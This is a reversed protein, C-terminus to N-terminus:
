KKKPFWPFFIPTRSAYEQFEPNNAYKKELLPVGSVFRLLYTMAIPSLIAIFWVSSPIVVVLLAWWMVAEGFYNPHRTYKWLGTQMIKTKSQARIKLFAKLQADGISEFLFGILHLVMGAIIWVSWDIPNTNLYAAYIPLAIFLMIMGQTFFVNIYAKWRPNKPGWKKRMEVYRFDEPKKFNRIGIYLFLRLGWLTVLATVVIMLLTVEVNTSITYIMSYWAIVVFGLGWGIDVISNNNLKQAVLFFVLIYVHVTLFAGLLYFLPNM